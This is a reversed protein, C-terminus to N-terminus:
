TDLILPQMAFQQIKSAGHTNTMDQPSTNFLDRQALTVALQPMDSYQSAVENPVERSYYTAAVSNALSGLHQYYSEVYDQQQTSGNPFASKLANDVIDMLTECLNDM